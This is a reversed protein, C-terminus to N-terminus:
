KSASLDLDIGDGWGLKKMQAYLPGDKRSFVKELLTEQYTCLNVKIHGSRFISPKVLRCNPKTLKEKSFIIYSFKEDEYGMSGNKVYKQEYIRELRQSFHCWDGQQMPCPGAHPCPALIHGGMRLLQDRYRKILSFGKPTGPEIITLFKKTCKWAKQLIAMQDEQKMESLVYFFSVLDFERDFPYEKLNKEKWTVHTASVEEMLSKGLEIFGKDREVLEMEKCEEFVTNVGWFGTGPGSGLDLYSSVSDRPLHSLVNEIAAYTAPMRLAIYALYDNRSFLYRVDQNERYKKSLAEASQAIEKIPFLAFQKKLSDKLQDPLFM